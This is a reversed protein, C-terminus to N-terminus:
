QEPVTPSLLSLCHGLQSSSKPSPPTGNARCFSPDTEAAMRDRKSMAEKPGSSYLSRGRRQPARTKIIRERSEHFGELTM